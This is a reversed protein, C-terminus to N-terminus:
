LGDFNGGQALIGCSDYLLLYAFYGTCCGVVEDLGSCLNNNKPNPPRNSRM